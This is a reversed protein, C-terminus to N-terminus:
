QSQNRSITVSQSSQRSMAHAGNGPLHRARRAFPGHQEHQGESRGAADAAELRPTRQLVLVAGIVVPHVLHEVLDHQVRLRVTFGLPARGLRPLQGGRRQEGGAGVARVTQPQPQRLVDLVDGVRQQSRPHWDRHRQGARGEVEVHGICAQLQVQGGM